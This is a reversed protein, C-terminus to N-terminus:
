ELIDLQLLNWFKGNSDDDTASGTYQIKCYFNNRIMAGFSNQADVYSRIEFVNNGLDRIDSSSSSPFDATSPSKLRNEVYVTCLVFAMTKHDKEGGNGNSLSYICLCIICLLVIMGIGILTNKQQIPDPRKPEIKQATSEMTPEPATLPPTLLQDLLQKAQENKPNIAMVKQLAQIRESDNNSVQYLWGWVNENNPTEKMAAVFYKRAEERKGSKFAGIGNQLNDM